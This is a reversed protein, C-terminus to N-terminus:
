ARPNGQLNGEGCPWSSRALPGLSTRFVLLEDDLTFAVIGDDLLLVRSMVRRDDDMSFLTRRDLGADVSLLEGNRWFVATGNRDVAPYTTYFGPLGPGDVCTGGPELRRFRAPSPLGNDLEPGCVVGDPGVVMAGHSAWQASPVADREYRTCHFSGYGFNGILFAGNGLIAKRGTPGAPTSGMIRGDALDLFFTAGIGGSSDEFSAAVRDDSVLLSEFPDVTIGRRIWRFRQPASAAASDKGLVDPTTSWLCAGSLDYRAVRPNRLSKRRSQLRGAWAICFGDDLLVFGGIEEDPEHTPVVTRLTTGDPGVEQLVPDSNQRSVVWVTGDGSVRSRPRGGFAFKRQWRTAGSLSLATVVTTEVAGGDTSTVYLPGSPGAAALSVAQGPLPIRLHDDM